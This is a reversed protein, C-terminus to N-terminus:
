SIRGSRGLDLAEEEYTTINCVDSLPLDYKLIWRKKKSKSKQATVGDYYTIGVKTIGVKENRAMAAAAVM